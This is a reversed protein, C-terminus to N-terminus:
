GDHQSVGELRMTAGVGALSGGQPEPLLVCGMGGPEGQIADWHSKTDVALIIGDAGVWFPSLEHGWLGRGNLVKGM